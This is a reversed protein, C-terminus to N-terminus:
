IEKFNKGSKITVKLEFPNLDELITKISEKCENVIEDDVCYIINDSFVCIPNYQKTELLKQKVIDAATSQVYANATRDHLLRGFYNTELKHCRSLWRSLEPYREKISGIIDEADEVEIELSSALNKASMGYMISYFLEKGSAKDEEGLFKKALKAYYKAHKIDKQLRTDNTVTALISIEQKSYDASIFTKGEPCTFVEKFDKDPSFYGTEKDRCIIRGTATATVDFSLDLERVDEYKVLAEYKAKIKQKKSFLKKVRNSPNKIQNIGVVPYGVERFIEREIEWQSLIFTTLDTRISLEDVLIKHPVMNLHEILQNDIKLLKKNAESYNSNYYDYMFKCEILNQRFEKTPKVALFNHSTPNFTFCEIAVLDKLSQFRKNSNLQYYLTRLNHHSELQFDIEKLVSLDFVIIAKAEALLTNFNATKNYFLCHNKSCVSFGQLEDKIILPHFAVVRDTYLNPM